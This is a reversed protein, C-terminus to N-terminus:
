RGGGTGFLVMVAGKRAPNAPSNVSGDQNLAAAFGSGSSDATFLAPRAPALALNVPASRRGESSIVMTTTRNGARQYPIAVGLQNPTVYILTGVVDDFTVQTTEAKGFNSGFVTVIEGASAAGGQYSGANVIGGPSVQPVPKGVALSIPNSRWSNPNKVAIGYSTEASFYPKPMVLTLTGANVLKVDSVVWPVDNVQVVSGTQFGSGRVTVLTDGSGITVLQPSVEALIPARELVTLTVDVTSSVAASAQLLITGRYVGPALGQPAVSVTLTGSRALVIPTVRLWNASASVSLSGAVESVSISQTTLSEAAQEVQITLTAPTVRWAPAVAVSEDTLRALFADAGGGSSRQYANRVPFNASQTNGGVYVSRGDPTVAIGYAVGDGGTGGLYTSYILSQGSPTFKTVFVDSNLIGGGRFDHLTDKVPFDASGTYGAVYMNGQKDVAVSQGIAGMSGGLYTSYLLTRGMSDFKMLFANVPGAPSAQFPDKMTLGAEWSFGTMYINGEGDLALANVQAAAPGGIFTSYEIRQGDAAIRMLFASPYSTRATITSQIPDKLPFDISNSNGALIISGDRAIKMSGAGIHDAGPSGIFTSFELLGDASFKAVICDIDRDRICM